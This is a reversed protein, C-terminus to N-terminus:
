KRKYRIESELAKCMEDFVYLVNDSSVKMNCDWKKFDYNFFKSEDIVRGVTKCSEVVLKDRELVRSARIFLNDAVLKSYFSDMSKFDRCQYFGVTTKVARKTLSDNIKSVDIGDDNKTCAICFLLLLVLWRM